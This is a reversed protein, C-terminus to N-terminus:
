ARFFLFSSPVSGSLLIFSSTNVVVIATAHFFKISNVSRNNNMTLQRLVYHLPLSCSSSSTVSCLNEQFHLMALSLSGASPASSSCSHPVLFVFSLHVLILLCIVIMWRKAGESDSGRNRPFVISYLELARNGNIIFREV